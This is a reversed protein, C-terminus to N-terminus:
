TYTVHIWSQSVNLCYQRIYNRQPKGFRQKALYVLGQESSKSNTNWTDASIDVHGNLAFNNKEQQDPIRKLDYLNDHDKVVLKDLERQIKDHRWVFDEAPVPAITGPLLEQLRAIPLKYIISLADALQRGLGSDKQIM